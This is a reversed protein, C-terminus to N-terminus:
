DHGEPWAITSWGELNLRDWATKLVRAEVSAVATSRKAEPPMLTRALKAITYPWHQLAWRVRFPEVDALL